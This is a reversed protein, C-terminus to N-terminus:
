FLFFVFPILYRCLNFEAYENDKVFTSLFIRFIFIFIELIKLVSIKPVLYCPGQFKQILIRSVM